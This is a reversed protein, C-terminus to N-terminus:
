GTFGLKKPDIFMDLTLVRVRFLWLTVLFFGLLVGAATGATVRKMMYAEVDFLEAQVPSILDYRAEVSARELEVQQQAQKVMDLLRLHEKKASEYARTLDAYKSELEPLNSVRREHQALQSELSAKEQKAVALSQELEFVRAEAAAYIPNKSSRVSASPADKAGAALSQLRELNGQLRKVDPHMPGKGSARAEVLKSNLDAIQGAYPNTRTQELVTFASVSRLKQREYRLELTEEEIQRELERVKERMEYLKSYVTRSQEPLADVNNSKFSLLDREATALAEEAEELKQKMFRQNVLVLRLAKEIESELYNDVHTKLFRVAAEETDDMFRGVYLNSQMGGLKNFSLFKRYLEVLGRDPAPLGLDTLTEAILRSSRFSSEAERFFKIKGGSFEQTLADNATPILTMEFSAYHPPPKLRYYAFGGVGGLFGCLIYAWWYPLYAGVIKKGKAWLEPLNISPGDAPAQTPPPQGAPFYGYPGAGPPMGPGPMSGYGYYGGQGNYQPVSLAMTPAEPIRSQQGRQRYEFLTEGIQVLDGPRLLVEHIRQNNVFTGNTSGLDVLRHHPGDQVVEAHQSSARQDDIPVDCQPGRGLM